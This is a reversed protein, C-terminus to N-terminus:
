KRYYQNYRGPGLGMQPPGPRLMNGGLLALNGGGPPGIALGQRMMPSM